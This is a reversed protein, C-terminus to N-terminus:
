SLPMVSFLNSFDISFDDKRMELTMSFFDLIVFVM